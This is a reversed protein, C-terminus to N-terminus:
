ESVRIVHEIRMEVAIQKSEFIDVPYQDLLRIFARVITM